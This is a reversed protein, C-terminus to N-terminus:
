STSKLSRSAFIIAGTVGAKNGLAAGVIKLDKLATTISYKKTEEGIRSIFKEGAGAIGGGVVVVEPNLLNIANAIGRGMYQCTKNITQIALDDGKEAYQFIVRTDFTNLREKEKLIQANPYNQSLEYLTKVMGSSSGYAEMCGLQGCNCRRGDIIISTHGIEAAANGVGRHVKGNIIIGGGIGTGLTLCLVIRSDRGAGCISEGLSMLNVDNDVFTPINFRSELSDKINVGKWDKINPTTGKVIGTVIDITGPSGIGIGSIKIGRYSIRNLVINVANALTYLIADPGERSRSDLHDFMILNGYEDGCGFKLKTGGLDLGIFYSNSKM